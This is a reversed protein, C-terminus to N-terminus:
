GQHIKRALSARLRILHFGNELAYYYDAEFRVADIVLPADTQARRLAAKLFISPDISRLADTLSLLNRKDENGFVLMSVARCMAGTGVIQFGHATKLHEAVTSKGVGTFGIIGIRTVKVM